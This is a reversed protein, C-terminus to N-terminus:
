AAYIARSAWGCSRARTLYRRRIKVSAKGGKRASSKYLRDLATVMAAVTSGGKISVYSQADKQLDSPDLDRLVAIMKIRDAAPTIKVFEALAKILSSRMQGKENGYAEPIITLAWKIQNASYKGLMSLLTGIAQTQRPETDDKGVPVKPIEVKCEALLAKLAAADPDGGAAAAHFQAMPHMKVRKTNVVSFASAQKQFDRHDIVACPMADIDRRKLAAELRHQGDIVAYKKKGPLVNRYPSRLSGMLIRTDPIESEASKGEIPHRAPLRSRRYACSSGSQHM